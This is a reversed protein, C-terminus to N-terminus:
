IYLTQVPNMYLDKNRKETESTVRGPDQATVMLVVPQYAIIHM